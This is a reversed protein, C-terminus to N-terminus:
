DAEEYFSELADELYNYEFTFGTQLVKNASVRQSALIVESMEGMMLNIAFAPVKPLVLPKKMAEALEKTFEKNTVPHPAVANYVGEFHTDEIARIFLRCADDIHIWSMYQKGSGLPAGAMLKVPRALQPLAGGKSSLVIGLRFIVTRLGLERMQWAAAEWAKCVEALFDDGYTSEESMLQDGSDGYIDKGSVSVFGKVHHEVQSLCQHLLNISDTRSHLLEKKREDSWKETAVSAGALNIIYDAYTIASEDIYGENVDWKFTKYTSIKDPNRSLHAVEYGQDILMESLRMGILGSGGTILIKGPM